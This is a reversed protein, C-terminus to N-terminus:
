SAIESIRAACERAVGTAPSDSGPMTAWGEAKVFGERQWEGMGRLKVLKSASDAEFSFQHVCIPVLQDKVARESLQTATASASGSTVVWGMSFGVTMLVLAGVAAGFLFPKAYQKLSM